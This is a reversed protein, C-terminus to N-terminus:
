QIPTYYALAQADHTNIWEFHERGNKTPIHLPKEM